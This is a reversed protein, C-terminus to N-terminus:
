GFRYGTDNKWTRVDCGGTREVCSSTISESQVCALRMQIQWDIEEFQFIQQRLKWWGRIPPWEFWNGPVSSWSWRNSPFRTETWRWTCVTSRETHTANETGATQQSIEEAFIGQHFNSPLDTQRIQTESKISFFHLLTWRDDFGYCLHHLWFTLRGTFGHAKHSM